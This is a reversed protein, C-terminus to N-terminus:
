LLTSGRYIKPKLWDEPTKHKKAEKKETFEPIPKDIEAPQNSTFQDQKKPPFQQKTLNQPFSQKNSFSNQNQKQFQNTQQQPYTKQFPINQTIQPKDQSINKRVYRMCLSAAEFTSSSTKISTFNQSASSIGMLINKAIDEHMNLNCANIIYPIIESTSAANPDVINIKGFNSNNEHSDINVVTKEQFLKQNSNYIYGLEQLSPTDVIIITDINGGSTAYSMMQPTIEPYGERPEIVLNFLDNEINYSVKEISGEQYPFSIVLNRGQSQNLRTTLKDLGILSSYEVTPQSSCAISIQKGTASLSLFLALSAAFSDMTPNAKTTVILGNSNEILNRLLGSQNQINSNM